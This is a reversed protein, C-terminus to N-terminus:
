IFHMLNRRSRIIYCHACNHHVVSLGTLKNRMEAPDEQHVPSCLDALVLLDGLLQPIHEWLDYSRLLPFYNQWTKEHFENLIERHTDFHTGEYWQLKKRGAPDVPAEPVALAPPAYKTKIRSRSCHTVCHPFTFTFFLRSGWATKNYSFIPLHNVSFALVDIGLNQQCSSSCLTKQSILGKKRKQPYILM